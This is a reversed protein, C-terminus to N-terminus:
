VTLRLFWLKKTIPRTGFHLFDLKFDHTNQGFSGFTMKFNRLFNQTMPRNLLTLITFSKKSPRETLDQFSSMQKKWFNRKFIDWKFNDQQIDCFYYFNGFISVINKKFKNPTLKRLQRLVTQPKAINGQTAGAALCYQKCATLLHVM